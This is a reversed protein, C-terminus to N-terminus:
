EMLGAMLATAVRISAHRSVATISLHSSGLLPPPYPSFCSRYATITAEVVHSTPPLFSPSSRVLPPSTVTTPSIASCRHHRLNGM